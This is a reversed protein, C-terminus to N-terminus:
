DLNQDVSMGRRLRSFEEFVIGDGRELKDSGPAPHMLKFPLNTTLNGVLAGCELDVQVSYSIVIGLHDSQDKHLTTSALNADEDKIKGDLAVGYTKANKAMPQITFTKHFHTGPTIPCGERTEFSAVERDFLSNTMTVEVHQMVSIKINKVTKKSNNSISLTPAIQQGHYYLERDLTVEMNLKGSSFTFGKSAMTSPQRLFKDAPSFQVKRVALTVSNRRHPKEQASDAVFVRLEYIVGLPKASKDSFLQVSCPANDPISVFFPYSNAGLKKVLREQMETTQEENTLPIEKCALQMEKSFSVGMMEDEERGFRYTIGVSAFVKRGRLYDYDCVVVGDIPDTVSSTDVFDRRGLYVTIKGNPATKKYVKVANVM